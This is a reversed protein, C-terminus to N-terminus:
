EKEVYKKIFNSWVLESGYITITAYAVFINFCETKYLSFATYIIWLISTVILGASVLDYIFKEM